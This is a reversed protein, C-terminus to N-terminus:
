KAGKIFDSLIAGDSIPSNKLANLKTRINNFTEANATVSATGTGTGTVPGNPASGTITTTVTFNQQLIAGIVNIIEDILDEQFQKFVQGLVFNETPESDNKTLNIGGQGTLWVKKGALSKIVRDGGVANEPIKDETSSLRKIVYCQDAEGDVFALLVLDDIAPLQYDGSKDGIADWGMEGVVRRTFGENIIECLVKVFSRNVAISVSKITAVAFYIKNDSLIRKLEQLPFRSM